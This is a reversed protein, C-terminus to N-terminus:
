SRLIFIRYLIKFGLVKCGLDHRDAALVCEASEDVEPKQIGGWYCREEDSARYWQRRNVGSYQPATSCNEDDEQNTDRDVKGGVNFIGNGPIVEEEKEDNTEEMDEKNNYDRFNTLKGGKNLGIIGLLNVFLGGM